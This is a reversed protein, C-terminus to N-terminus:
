SPRPFLKTFDQLAEARSLLVSHGRPSQELSDLGELGSEKQLVFSFPFSTVFAHPLVSPDRHLLFHPLDTTQFRTFNPGHEILRSPWSPLVGCVNVQGLDPPLLDLLLSGVLSTGPSAKCVAKEVSDECPREETHTSLPPVGRRPTKAYEQRILAVAQSSCKIKVLETLAGDGFVAM